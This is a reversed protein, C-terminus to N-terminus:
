HRRRRFRRRPGTRYDSLRWPRKYDSLYPLFPPTQKTDGTRRRPRGLVPRLIASMLRRAQKGVSLRNVQM